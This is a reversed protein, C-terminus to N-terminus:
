AGLSRGWAAAVGAPDITVVSPGIQKLAQVFDKWCYLETSNTWHDRWNPSTCDWQLTSGTTNSGTAFRYMQVISWQGPGPNLYQALTVPSGYTFRTALTSCPLGPNNCRGGNFSFTKAFWPPGTKAQSNFTSAYIRGFDYCQNVTQRQLAVDYYNNPYAFLGVAEPYGHAQLAQVSGCIESFQQWPPLNLADVYRQGQSIFKWGYQARLMALDAWSAILLPKPAPSLHLSAICTRTTPAVWSTIVSATITLHHAAYEPAQWRLNVIGPLPQCQADVATWASHAMLLTLYPPTQKSTATATAGAGTAWATGVSVVLLVVAVVRGLRIM